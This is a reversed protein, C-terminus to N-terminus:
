KAALEYPVSAVPKLPHTVGQPHRVLYPGIALYDLKANLFGRVCDDASCVILEEHMNFGTNIVAPLGTRQYFAEIIRYYSPSRDKRVLQPRATNDLHVVGQMNAAMWPTCHFTVTM